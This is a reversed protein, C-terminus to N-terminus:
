HYEVAPRQHYKGDRYSIEIYEDQHHFVRFLEVETGNDRTRNESVPHWEPHDGRFITALMSQNFM